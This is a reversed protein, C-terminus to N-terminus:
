REDLRNSKKLLSILLLSILLTLIGYLSSTSIKVSQVLSCSGSGTQIMEPPMPVVGFKISQTKGSVNDHVLIFDDTLVETNNLGVYIETGKVGQAVREDIAEIYQDLYDKAVRPTTLVPLRFEMKVVSYGMGHDATDLQLASSREVRIVKNFVLRDNSDTEITLNPMAQFALVFQPLTVASLQPLMNGSTLQPFIMMGTLNEDAFTTPEIWETTFNEYLHGGTQVLAYPFSKGKGPLTVGSAVVAPDVNTEVQASLPFYCTVTATSYGPEGAHKFYTLKSHSAIRDNLDSYYGKRWEESFGTIEALCDPRGELLGPLTPVPNPQNPPQPPNPVPPNPTKPTECLDENIRVSIEGSGPMEKGRPLRFNKSPALMFKAVPNFMPLKGQCISDPIPKDATPLLNPAQCLNSCNFSLVNNQLEDCCDDNKWLPIKQGGVDCTKLEVCSCPHSQSQLLVTSQCPISGHHFDGIFNAAKDNIEVSYLAEYSSDVELNGQNSCGMPPLTLPLHNVIGGINAGVGPHEEISLAATQTPYQGQSFLSLDLNERNEKNNFDFYFRDNRTGKSKDNYLVLASGYQTGVIIDKEGDGNVDGTEVIPVDGDIVIQIDIQQNLLNGSKDAFDCGSAGKKGYIISLYDSFQLFVGDFFEVQQDYDNTFNAVQYQPNGNRTGYPNVLIGRWTFVLDSCGDKDLDASAISYPVFRGSKQPSNVEIPQSQVFPLSTLSQVNGSPNFAAVKLQEKNNPDIKYLYSSNDACNVDYRHCLNSGSAVVISRKGSSADQVSASDFAGPGIFAYAYPKFVVNPDDLTHQNNDTEKKWPFEQRMITLYSVVPHPVLNGNASRMPQFNAVDGVGIIEGLTHSRGDDFVVPQGSQINIVPQDLDFLTAQNVVAFDILTDNDFDLPEISVPNLAPPLETLAEPLQKVGIEFNYSYGSLKLRAAVNQNPDNKGDDYRYFVLPSIFSFSGSQNFAFPRHLMRAYVKVPDYLATVIGSKLDGIGYQVGKEFGTLQNLNGWGFNDVNSKIAGPFSDKTYPSLSEQSSAIVGPECTKGAPCNGFLNRFENPGIENRIDAIQLQNAIINNGSSDVQFDMYVNNIPPHTFGHRPNLPQDPGVAFLPDLLDWKLLSRIPQNGEWPMKGPVAALDSLKCVKSNAITIKDTWFNDTKINANKPHDFSRLYLASTDTASNFNGQANKGVQAPDSGVSIPNLFQPKKIQQSEAIQFNNGVFLLLSLLFLIKRLM